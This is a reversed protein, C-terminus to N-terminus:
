SREVKEFAESQGVVAISYAFGANQALRWLARPLALRLVKHVPTANVDGYGFSSRVTMGADQVIKKLEKVSYIREDTIGDAYATYRTPIQIIVHRACKAQEVLLRVTVDRDFHELVGCSFALDFQGYYPSLDFADGVEFSAPSGLASAQQRAIEVLSEENDVGMAQYGQSALFMTSWGPGCGVDLVRGGAPCYRNINGYLTEHFGWHPVATQLWNSGFAKHSKFYDKWRESM